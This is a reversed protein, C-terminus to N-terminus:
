PQREEVEERNVADAADQAAAKKMRKAKQRIMARADKRKSHRQQLKQKNKVSRYSWTEGEVEALKPDCQEYCREGGTPDVPLRRLVEAGVANAGGRLLHDAAHAHLCKVDLNNRKSVGIFGSGMVAAVFKESNEPDKEHAAARYEELRAAGGPTAFLRQRLNRHFTNADELSARMAEATENEGTLDANFKRVGDEAEYEDIAKVLWPCTLRLTASHLRRGERPDSFFAQPFGHKCSTCPVAAINGPHRLQREELSRRDDETPPRADPGFPFEGDAATSSLRLRLRLSPSAKVRLGVGVRSGGLVLATAM